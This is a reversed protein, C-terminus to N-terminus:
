WELQYTGIVLSIAQIMRDEMIRDIEPERKTARKGLGGQANQQSGSRLDKHGLPQGAEDLRTWGGEGEWHDFGFWIGM